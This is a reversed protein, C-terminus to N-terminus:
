AGVGFQSNDAVYANSTENSEAEQGTIPDFGRERRYDRQHACAEEETACDVQGDDWEFVWPKSQDREARIDADLIDINFVSSTDRAM